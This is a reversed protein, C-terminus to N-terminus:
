PKYIGLIHLHFIALYYSFRVTATYVFFYLSTVFSFDENFHIFIVGVSLVLFFSVCSFLLVAALSNPLHMSPLIYRKITKGIAHIVDRIYTFIFLVGFVM